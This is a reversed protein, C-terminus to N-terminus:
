LEALIVYNIIYASISDTIKSSIDEYVQYLCLGLGKKWQRFGYVEIYHCFKTRKVPIYIQWGSMNDM